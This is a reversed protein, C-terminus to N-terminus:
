PGRSMDRAEPTFTRIGWRAGAVVCAVLFLSTPSRRPGADITGTTAGRCLEVGHWLPSLWRAAAALRAAALDPLVHGLVLVAAPHRAAHHGPVRFDTEQTAAFARSRRPSRPRPCRPPRSRSCAWASPVGGLLAAVVLFVTAGVAARVATWAVVGVYVDGPRIPTAVM